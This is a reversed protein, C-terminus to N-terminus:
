GVSIVMRKNQFCFGIQKPNRSKVKFSIDRTANVQYPRDKTSAIGMKQKAFFQISILQGYAKPSINMSDKLINRGYWRINEHLISNHQM